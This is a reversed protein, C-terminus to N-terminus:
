AAQSGPHQEVTTASSVLLLGGLQEVLRQRGIAGKPHGAVGGLGFAQLPPRVDLPTRAPPIRALGLTVQFQPTGPGPCWACTRHLSRGSAATSQHAPARSSCSFPLCGNDSRLRAALASAIMIVSTTPEVASRRDRPSRSASSIRPKCAAMTRSSTLVSPAVYAIRQPVSEKDGKRGSHSRDPGRNGDLLGQLLVVGRVRLAGDLDTDANVGARDALAIVVQLPLGHIRHGPHHVLGDAPLDEGGVLHALM